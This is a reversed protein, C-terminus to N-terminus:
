CVSVGNDILIMSSLLASEPQHRVLWPAYYGSAPIQMLVRMKAIESRIM